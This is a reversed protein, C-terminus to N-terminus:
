HYVPLRLKFIGLSDRYCLYVIKKNISCCAAYKLYEPNVDARCNRFYLFIRGCFSSLVLRTFIQALFSNFPLWIWMLLTLHLTLIDKSFLESVNTRATVEWITVIVKNENNRRIIRSVTQEERKWERNGEKEPRTM